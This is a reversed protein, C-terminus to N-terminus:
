SFDGMMELVVRMGSQSNTELLEARGGGAGDGEDVAMGSSAVVRGESSRLSSMEAMMGEAMGTGSSFVSEDSVGDSSSSVRESGGAARRREERLVAIGSLYPNEAVEPLSM